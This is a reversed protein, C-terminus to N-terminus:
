FYFVFVFGFFLFLWVGCVDRRSLNYNVIDTTDRHMKYKYFLVRFLIYAFDHESKTKNEFVCFRKRKKENIFDRGDHMYCWVSKM